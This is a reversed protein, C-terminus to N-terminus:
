INVVKKIEIDGFVTKVTFTVLVVGKKSTDFEFEECSIIRDDISLADIIRRKLEPCVYTVPEGFLDDLIIGYNWSYILYQYRETNLMKYIMQKVAEAEDCYGSTINKDFHLKHNKSPINEEELNTTFLSSTSPIM